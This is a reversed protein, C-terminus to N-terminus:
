IAQKKNQLSQINQSSNAIKELNVGVFSVQDLVDQICLYVFTQRKTSSFRTCKWIAWQSLKTNGHTITLITTSVKRRAERLDHGINQLHCKRAWIQTGRPYM